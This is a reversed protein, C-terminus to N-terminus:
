YLVCDTHLLTSSTPRATVIRLGGCGFAAFEVNSQQSSNNEKETKESLRAEAEQSITYTEEQGRIDNLM